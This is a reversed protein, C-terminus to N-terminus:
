EIPFFEPVDLKGDDDGFLEQLYKEDTADLLNAAWPDTNSLEPAGANEIGDKAPLLEPVDLNADTDGFLEQLLKEDVVVDLSNAAWLAEDSLGPVDSTDIGNNLSAGLVPVPTVVPAVEDAPLAILAKPSLGTDSRRHSGAITNPSLKVRKEISSAGIEPSQPVEELRRKQTKRAPNASSKRALKAMMNKISNNVYKNLDAQYLLQCRLVEYGGAMVFHGLAIWEDVSQYVRKVADPLNTGGRIMPALKKHEECYIDPFSATSKLRTIENLTTDCVPHPGGHAFHACGNTQIAIPSSENSIRCYGSCFTVETISLCM